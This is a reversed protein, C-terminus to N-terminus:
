GAFGCKKKAIEDGLKYLKKSLNELKKIYAMNMSFDNLGSKAETVLLDNDAIEYIRKLIQDIKAM